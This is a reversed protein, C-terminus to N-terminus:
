DTLKPPFLLAEFKMEKLFIRYVDLTYPLKAKFCHCMGSVGMSINIVMSPCTMLPRGCLIETDRNIQSGSYVQTQCNQPRFNRVSATQSNFFGKELQDMGNEIDFNKICPAGQM